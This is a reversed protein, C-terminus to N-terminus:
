GAPVRPLTPHPYAYGSPSPIHPPSSGHIAPTRSTAGRGSGFPPSIQRVEQRVILFLKVIRYGLQLSNTALWESAGPSLDEDSPHFSASSVPPATGGCAAACTQRAALRSFTNGFRIAHGTCSTRRWRSERRQTSMFGQGAPRATWRSRAPSFVEFFGAGAPRVIGPPRL